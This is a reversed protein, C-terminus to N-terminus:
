PPRPPEIRGRRKNLVQAKKDHPLFVRRLTKSALQNDSIVVNQNQAELELKVKRLYTLWEEISSGPRRHESEWIGYADDAREHEMREHARDLISWVM